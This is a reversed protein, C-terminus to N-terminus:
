QGAARRRCTRKLDRLGQSVKHFAASEQVGLAAGVERYKRPGAGDLGFRLTLAQALDPKLDRMLSTLGGELAGSGNPDGTAPENGDLACRMLWGEPWPLQLLDDDVLSWRAPRAGPAPSSSSCSRQPGLIATERRRLEVAVVRLSEWAARLARRQVAPALSTFDELATLKEGLDIILPQVLM